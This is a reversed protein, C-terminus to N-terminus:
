LCFDTFDQGNNRGREDTPTPRVQDGGFWCGEAYSGSDLLRCLYPLGPWIRAKVQAMKLVFTKVVM